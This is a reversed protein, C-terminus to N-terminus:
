DLNFKAVAADDWALGNGPRDPVVAMGDVIKLPERLLPAAWDVYELWHCGLTVSRLPLTWM